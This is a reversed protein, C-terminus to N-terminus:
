KPNIIKVRKLTRDTHTFLLTEIYNNFPRNDKKAEKKLEDLLNPDIKITYMKKM